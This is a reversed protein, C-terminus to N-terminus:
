RVSRFRFAAGLATISVISLVALYYGPAVPQGTTEILFACIMPTFGGFVAVAANYSFSLGTARVPGTFVDAMVSPLAGFYLAKLLGLITMVVALVLFSKGAILWLFLPITLLVIGIVAPIM